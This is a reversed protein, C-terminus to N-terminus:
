YVKDKFPATSVLVFNLALPFPGLRRLSVATHCFLLGRYTKGISVLWFTMSAM